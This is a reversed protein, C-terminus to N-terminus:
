LNEAYEQVWMQLRLLFRRRKMINTMTLTLCEIDDLSSNLDLYDNETMLINMRISM